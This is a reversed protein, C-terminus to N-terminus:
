DLLELFVGGSEYLDDGVQVSWLMHVRFRRFVSSQSPHPIRILVTQGQLPQTGILRIGKLSLDSSILNLQRGQDTEVQIPRVLAIRPSQRREVPVSVKRYQRILQGIERQLRRQRKLDNRVRGRLRNGGLPVYHYRGQRRRLSQQILGVVERWRSEALGAEALVARVDGSSVSGERQARDLVQRAVTRLEDM